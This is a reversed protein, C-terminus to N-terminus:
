SSRLNREYRWPKPTRLQRRASSDKFKCLTSELAVTNIWIHWLLMGTGQWIQLLDATVATVVARHWLPETSEDLEMTLLELCQHWQASPLQCAAGCFYLAPLLGQEIGVAVSCCDLM